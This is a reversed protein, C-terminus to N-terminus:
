QDSVAEYTSLVMRVWNLRCQYARGTFIGGMALYGVCYPWEGNHTCLIVIIGLLALVYFVVALQEFFTASESLRGAKSGFGKFSNSYDCYDVFYSCMEKNNPDFEGLEKESFLKAALKVNVERKYKNALVNKGPVNKETKDPGALCRNVVSAKLGKFLFEQLSQLANGLIYCALFLVIAKEIDNELGLKLYFLEPAYRNLIPSIGYLLVGGSLIVNFFGIISLKDVIGEAIKDM